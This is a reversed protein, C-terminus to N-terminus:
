KASREQGRVYAWFSDDMAISRVGFYPFHGYLLTLESDAEAAPAGALAYRYLASVLATRDAGEKCHVLLPKPASRVIALLEGIQQATVVRKSSLPYDYLAMGLEKAAAAEEDYWGEGRHAGRLNLVSRVRHDRHAARLEGGTPQASRYVQGPVVAHFNGQYQLYGWYGGVSSAFLVVSVAVYQLPRLVWRLPARVRAGGHGGAWGASEASM